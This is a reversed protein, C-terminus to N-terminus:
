SQYHEDFYAVQDIIVEALSPDTGIASSYYLTRDGLHYPNRRFIDRQSAAETMEKEIGLLVPIDQYSHLADAIFFPVVIVTEADTLTKWDAVFPAEEMYAAIIEAFPEGSSRIAEVQNSIAETSKKNLNTGHGVIILATEEIKVGEDIIEHARKILLDTMKAHIGVPDCYHVVHDGRRTTHGDLELERPIVQRTFYGESIFNPVVYVEEEEIMPWIQRFSPEEKWFACHVSSFQGSAAITDAHDWSPQTSDPNETSGHGLILLASEPKSVPM